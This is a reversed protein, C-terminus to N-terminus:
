GDTRDARSRNMDEGPLLVIFTAGRGEETQVNITGGLSHVLQRALPLGLGTGGTRSFFPLFIRSVDEERIGKGSDVVQLEVWDERRRTSVELRGGDPMADRANSLLTVVVQQIRRPDSAIKGLGEDLALVPRIRGEELARGMADVVERVVENVDVPRVQPTGPGALNTLLRSLQAIRHTQALILERDEDQARAKM